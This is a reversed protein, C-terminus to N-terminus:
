AKVLFLGWPTPGPRFECLSIMQDMDSLLKLIPYDRPDRPLQRILRMDHTPGFRTAFTASSDARLFEHM